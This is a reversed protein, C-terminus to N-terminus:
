SVPGDPPTTTKKKKVKRKKEKKLQKQLPKGWIKRLAPKREKVGERQENPADREERQEAQAKRKMIEEDHQIESATRPVHLCPPLEPWPPAEESPM